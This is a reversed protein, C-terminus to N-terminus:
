IHLSPYLYKIMFYLKLSNIGKNFRKNYAKPKKQDTKFFVCESRSISLNSLYFMFSMLTQNLTYQAQLMLM